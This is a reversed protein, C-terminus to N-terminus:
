TLFFSLGAFYIYFIKPGHFILTPGYFEISGESFTYFVTRWNFSFTKQLGGIVKYLDLSFGNLSVSLDRLKKERSDAAVGDPLVSVALLPLSLWAVLLLKMAM